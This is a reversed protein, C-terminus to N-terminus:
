VNKVEKNVVKGDGHPADDETFNHVIDFSFLAIGAAMMVVVIFSVVGWHRKVRMMAPKMPAQVTGDDTIRVSHLNKKVASWVADNDREQMVSHYAPITCVSVVILIVGVCGVLHVFPLTAVTMAMFALVLIFGLATMGSLTVIFKKVGHLERQSEPFIRGVNYFRQTTNSAGSSGDVVVPQRAFIASRQSVDERPQKEDSRTTDFLSKPPAIPTPQYGSLQRSLPVAHGVDDRNETGKQGDHHNEIFQRLEDDDFSGM